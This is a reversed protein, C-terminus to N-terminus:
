ALSVSVVDPFIELLNINRGAAEGVGKSMLSTSLVSFVEVQLSNKAPFLDPFLLCFLTFARLELKLQLFFDLCLIWKFLM